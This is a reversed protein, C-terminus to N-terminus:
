FGEIIILGDCPGTTNIPLSLTTLTTTADTGPSADVNFTILAAYGFAIPYDITQAVAGSNEYDNLVCYAKRISRAGFAQIFTATGGSTGVLPVLNAMNAGAGQDAFRMGEIKGKTQIMWLHVARAWPNGGMGLDHPDPPAPIILSSM